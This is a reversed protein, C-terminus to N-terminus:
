IQQQSLLTPWFSADLLMCVLFGSRSRWVGVRWEGGRLIGEQSEGRGNGLGGDM